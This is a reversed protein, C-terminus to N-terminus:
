RSRMYVKLCYTAFLAILALYFITIGWVFVVSLQDSPVYVGKSKMIQWLWSSSGWSHGAIFIFMLFLNIPEKLKKFIWYWLVLWLTSGVLFAWPSASLFYYAPSAENVIKNTWYLTDQGLLTVIVDVLAPFFFAFFLPNKAALKNIFM